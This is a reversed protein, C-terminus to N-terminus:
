FKSEIAEIHDQTSDYSGNDIYNELAVNEFEAIRDVWWDGSQTNLIGEYNIAIWKAFLLAKVKENIQM